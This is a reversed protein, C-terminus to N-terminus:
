PVRTERALGLAAALAALARGRHSVRNKTAPALQAATAGLEPDFFVPDYGFGGTGAPAHAIAGPWCGQAIVPAPDAASYLAVIVCHFRAERRTTAGLTDLLKALNAADSADAGAYRASRVGPAGGLADVILGSDDAIAPLGTQAAAHRAKLIANEVFTAGTEAPSIVGLESQAIIELGSGALLARFEELKGCNGTALVWPGAAVAPSM